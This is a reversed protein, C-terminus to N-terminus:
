DASSRIMEVGADFARLNMEIRDAALMKRVIM